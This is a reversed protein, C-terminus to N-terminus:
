TDREVISILGWFNNKIKLIEKGLPRIHIRHSYVSFVNMLWLFENVM